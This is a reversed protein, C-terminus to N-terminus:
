IMEGDSSFQASNVGHSHGIFQKIENGNHINWLRITKDSSCSVITNNNPSINISWITSLHGHLRMIETRNHVNWLRITKDSSCSVAINENSMLEARYVINYHGKLTTIQKGSTVNWIRVTNDNSSTIMKNGNASFKISRIANEYGKITKLLQFYKIKYKLVIKNFDDIWGLKVSLIRVWHEIILKVQKESLQSTPNENENTLSTMEEGFIKLKVYGRTRTLVVNLLFELYSIFFLICQM